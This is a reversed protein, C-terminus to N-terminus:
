PDLPWILYLIPPFLTLFRKPFTEGTKHYFGTWYYIDMGGGRKPSVEIKM